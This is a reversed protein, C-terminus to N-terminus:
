YQIMAPSSPLKETMALWVATSLLHYANNYKPYDKSCMWNETKHMRQLAYPNYTKCVERAVRALENDDKGVLQKAKKVLYNVVLRDAQKM